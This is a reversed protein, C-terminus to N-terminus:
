SPAKIYVPIPEAVPGHSHHIEQGVCYSDLPEVDMAIDIGRELAEDLDEPAVTLWAIQIEQSM